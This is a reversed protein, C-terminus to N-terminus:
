WEFTPPPQKSPTPKPTPEPTPPPTPFPGPSPEPVPTPFPDPSPDPTPQPYCPTCTIGRTSGRVFDTQQGSCVYTGRCENEVCRGVLHSYTADSYYRETHEIAYCVRAKTPSFKGLYGLTLSLTFMILAMVFLARRGSFPIRKILRAMKTQRREPSALLHQFEPQCIPSARLM